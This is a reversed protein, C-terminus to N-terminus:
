AVAQMERQQRQWDAVATEAQDLTLHYTAQMPERGEYYPRGIPYSVVWPFSAAVLAPVVSDDAPEILPSAGFHINM